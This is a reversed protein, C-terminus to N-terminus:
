EISYTITHWGFHRILARSVRAIAGDNGDKDQGFQIDNDLNARPLIFDRTQIQVHFILLKNTAIQNQNAAQLLFM